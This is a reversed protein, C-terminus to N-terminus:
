ESTTLYSHLVKVCAAMASLPAMEYGHTNQTPFGICAGRGILGAKLSASAESGFARVVQRQCEIGLGSAAEVLERSLDLSYHYLADKYFVV